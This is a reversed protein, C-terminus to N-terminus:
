GERHAALQKKDTRPHMYFGETWAQSVLKILNKYGRENKALVVLHRGRDSKDVREHLDKQAVYMECGIIPKLHKSKEKELTERAAAVADADGSEEAKALEDKAKGVAEKVKKNHKKVDNFFAKIGFMNGHDTMALAPMGDAVAKKILGSVSSLGDLLSYSTHVHLHVFQSM